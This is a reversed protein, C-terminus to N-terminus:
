EMLQRWYSRYRKGDVTIPPTDLGPSLPNDAAVVRTVTTTTGDGNDKEATVVVVTTNPLFGGGPATESAVTIATQELDFAISFRRAIGLSASCQSNTLDPHNTGFLIRGGLVLPRNVVKQGPEPFNVAWGVASSGVTGNTSADVLNNSACSPSLNAGCHDYVGLDSGTAGTSDKIMYFRNAVYHATSTNASYLPHERDGSGVFVADFTKGRVMDVGFLL